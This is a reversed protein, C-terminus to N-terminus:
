AGILARISHAAEISARFPYPPTMDCVKAAEELAQKRAEAAYAKMQDSSFARNGRLTLSYAPEPLDPLNM